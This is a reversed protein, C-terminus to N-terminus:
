KSKLNVSFPISCSISPEAKENGHFPDFPTHKCYLITSSPHVVGSSKVAPTFNKGSPLISEWSGHSPLSGNWCRWSKTSSPSLPGISSPAVLSEKESWSRERCCEWQQGRQPGHLHCDKDQFCRHFRNYIMIDMTNNNCSLLEKSDTSGRRQSYPCDKDKPYFITDLYKLM